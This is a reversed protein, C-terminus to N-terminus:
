NKVELGGMIAMGTINLTKKVSSQFGADGSIDARYTKNEAGGLIPMVKINVQWNDPVRIDLGGMLCFVDLTMDNGAMDARRLDINAGGIIASIKGGKLQQSTFFHEGGGMVLSLNIEDNGNGEGAEAPRGKRHHLIIALGILILVVPWLDSFNVDFWDFNNGLFIVGIGAIILGNLVQRQGEPRILYGAGLLILIVPWWNWVRIDHVIGINELLLGVGAAFIFLGIIMRIDFVNRGAQHKM